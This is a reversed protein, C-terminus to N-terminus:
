VSLSVSLFSFFHFRFAALCWPHYCAPLCVFPCVFLCVSRNVLRSISLCVSLCLWSVPSSSLPLTYNQAVAM